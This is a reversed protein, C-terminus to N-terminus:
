PYSPNYLQKRKKSIWYLNAPIVHWNVLNYTTIARTRFRKFKIFLDINFFFDVDLILNRNVTDISVLIM